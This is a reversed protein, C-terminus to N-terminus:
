KEAGKVTITTNTKIKDVTNQVATVKEEASKVQQQAMSLTFQLSKVSDLLLTNQQRLSAVITDYKQEITTIQNARNCSQMTKFLFLALFAMAFYKCNKSFFLQPTM